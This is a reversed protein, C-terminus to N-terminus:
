SVHRWVLGRMINSVAQKCVGFDAAVDKQLEGARCRAKIIAVKEDNLKAAGNVVGVNGRGKAHMDRVNDMQSGLVLHKPNCCPPNDCLHCVVRGAPDRGDLQVSVRHAKVTPGSRRGEPRMVGYGSENVAGTWPWCADPGGSTDVKSWFRSELSM